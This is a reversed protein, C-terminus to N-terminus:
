LNKAQFPLPLMSLRALFVPLGFIFPEKYNQDKWKKRDQRERGFFLYMDM